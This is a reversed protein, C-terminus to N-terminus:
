ILAETMKCENCSTGAPRTQFNGQQKNNKEM